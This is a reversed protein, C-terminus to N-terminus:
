SEVDHIREPERPVNSFFLSFAPDLPLNKTLAECAGHEESGAGTHGQDDEQQASALLGSGVRDPHQRRCAGPQAVNASCRSRNSDPSSSDATSPSSRGPSGPPPQGRNAPRKLFALQPLHKAQPRAAPATVNLDFPHHRRRRHDRGPADGQHDEDATAVNAPPSNTM